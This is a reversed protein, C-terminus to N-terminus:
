LGEEFQKVAEILMSLATIIGPLHDNIYDSRDDALSAIQLANKNAAKLAERIGPMIEKLYEALPDRSFELKNIIESAHLRVKNRTSRRAM